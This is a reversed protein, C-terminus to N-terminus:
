VKYTSFSLVSFVIRDWEMELVHGSPYNTKYTKSVKEFINHPYDSTESSTM